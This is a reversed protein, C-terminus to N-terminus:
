IQDAALGFDSNLGAPMAVSYMGMAIVVGAGILGGIISTAATGGGPTRVGKLIYSFILGVAWVLAGYIAGKLLLLPLGNIVGPVFKMIHPLGFVSVAVQIIILILYGLM